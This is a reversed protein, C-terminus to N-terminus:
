SSLSGRNAYLGRSHPLLSRGMLPWHNSELGLQLESRPVMYDPQPVMCAGTGISLLAQHRCQTRLRVVFGM